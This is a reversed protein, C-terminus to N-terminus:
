PKCFGEIVVSVALVFFEKAHNKIAVRDFTYM